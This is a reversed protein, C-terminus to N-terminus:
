FIFQLDCSTASLDSENFIIGQQGAEQLEDSKKEKENESMKNIDWYTLLLRVPM